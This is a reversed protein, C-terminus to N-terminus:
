KLNIEKQFLEFNPNDIFIQAKSIEESPLEFQVLRSKGPFIRTRFIVPEKVTKKGKTLFAYIEGELLNSSDNKLDLTVKNGEINFDPLAIKGSPAKETKLLVQVLYNQLITVGAQVGEGSYEIEKPKEKKSILIGVPIFTYSKDLNRVDIKIPFTKREGSPVKCDTFLEEIVVGKPLDGDLRVTGQHDVQIMGIKIEAEIQKDENNTVAVEYTQVKNTVM